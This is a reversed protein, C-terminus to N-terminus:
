PGDWHQLLVRIQGLPRNKVNRRHKNTHESLMAVHIKDKEWQQALDQRKGLTNICRVHTTVTNISQHMQIKKGRIDDEATNDKGWYDTGNSKGSKTKSM